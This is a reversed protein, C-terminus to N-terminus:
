GEATVPLAVDIQAEEATQPAPRRTVATHLGVSMALIMWLHPYYLVTLFAGSVMYGVLALDFGFALFYNFRERSGGKPNLLKRTQYNLRFCFYFLLLVPITGGLGLESLSQIYISHPVWATPDDGPEAYKESYRQPYNGPGAGLLPYDRFMRLGAKWLAIRHSATRDEQWNEASRWREKSAEPLIYIFAPIFLLFVVVSGLRKPNRAWGVAAAVLAGLVAGRSGCAIIAGSIVVFSALFFLRPLKKSEGLLMIGALPLVVSMAVGFDGANSFFGVSGAGVGIKALLEDSRGFEKAAHFSRIAAQAMKDNLLIFVLFFVRQRWSSIVIRSIVFYILVWRFLDLVTLWAAEPYKAFIASVLSVFLLLVLTLDIPRTFRSNGRTRPAIVWGLLCLAVVVKGVQVAQFVPYQASLRMYEVFLYMLVGVFGLSWKPERTAGLLQTSPEQRPSVQLEVAEGKM